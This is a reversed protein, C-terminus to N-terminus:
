RRGWSPDVVVLGGEPRRRRPRRQATPAPEPHELEGAFHSPEAARTARADLFERLDKAQVVWNGRKTLQSARLEGPADGIKRQLTRPHVHLIEAAMELPMVEPLSVIEPTM